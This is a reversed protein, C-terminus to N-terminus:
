RAYGGLDFVGGAPEVVLEEDRAIENGQGLGLIEFAEDLGVAGDPFLVM